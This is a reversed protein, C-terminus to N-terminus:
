GLYSDIMGIRNITASDPVKTLTSPTALCFNLALTCVNELSRTQAESSRVIISGHLPYLARDEAWEFLSQLTKFNDFDAIPKTTELEMTIPISRALWTACYYRFEPSANFISQDFDKITRNDLNFRIVKQETAAYRCILGM